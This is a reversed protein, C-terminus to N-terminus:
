PEMESKMQRKGYFFAAFLALGILLIILLSRKLKKM